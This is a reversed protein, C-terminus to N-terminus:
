FSCHYLLHGNSYSQRSKAMKSTPHGRNKQHTMERGIKLTQRFFSSFRDILLKVKKCFAGAFTMRKLEENIQAAIDFAEQLTLNQLFTQLM